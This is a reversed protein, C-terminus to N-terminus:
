ATAVQDVNEVPRAPLAGFEIRLLRDEVNRSVRLDGRLREDIIKQRLDLGERGGEM